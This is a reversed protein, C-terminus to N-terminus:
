KELESPISNGLRRIAANIQNMINLAVELAKRGAYGSVVPIKRTSVAEIFSALEDELADAESFSLQRIDMGPIVGDAHNEDRRIITIERGAFDVSVYTDKQFL